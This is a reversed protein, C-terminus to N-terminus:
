RQGASLMIAGQPGRFVVEYVADKKKSSIPFYLYGAVPYATPGDPLELDALDATTVRRGSVPPQPGGMGVGVGASSYVGGGRRRGGAPDYVGGTEYGISAEPYIGVNGGAGARQRSDPLRESYAVQGTGKNRLSFDAHSVEISSHNRPYLAVELVVYRRAIEPSLRQKVVIEPLLTVGLDFHDTSATSRYLRVDNRPPIGAALTGALLLLLPSRFRM